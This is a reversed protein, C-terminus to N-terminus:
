DNKSTAGTQTDQSSNKEGGIMPCDAMMGKEKSSSMKGCKKMMKQCQEPTMNQMKKCKKMMACRQKPTMSEMKKQCKTMMEQKQEPSMKGCKKMMKQCQIKNQTLTQAPTVVADSATATNGTDAAFATALGMLLFSITLGIVKKM